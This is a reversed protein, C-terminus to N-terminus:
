DRSAFPPTTSDIVEQRARIEEPSATGTTGLKKLIVESARNGVAAAEFQEAGTVLACAFASLFSDGAGVPDIPPSVEYAPVHYALADSETNCIVCGRPGLTLIVTASNKVALARGVDIMEAYTTGKPYPQNYVTRYGEIENLKLYMNSYRAIRDRSDVVVRLGGKALKVIKEAVKPTICGSQLQDSVCLIDIDKAVEELAAILQEEETDNPLDYNAFDLRPDEYEVDSIGKRLLKCYAPTWRTESTVIGTMDVNRKKLERNM